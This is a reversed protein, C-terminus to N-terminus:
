LGALARFHRTANRQFEPLIVTLFSLRDSVQFRLMCYLAECLGQPYNGSLKWQIRCDM